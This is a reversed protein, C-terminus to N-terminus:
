HLRMYKLRVSILRLTKHESDSSSVSVKGAAAVESANRQKLRNQMWSEVSLPLKTDILTPGASAKSYGALKKQLIFEYLYTKGSGAVRSYKELCLSVGLRRIKLPCDSGRRVDFVVYSQLSGKSSNVLRNSLSEATKCCFKMIVKGLYPRLNLIWFESRWLSHFFLDDLAGCM